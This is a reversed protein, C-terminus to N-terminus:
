AGTGIQYTFVTGGTKGTQRKQNVTSGNSHYHYTYSGDNESKNKAWCYLYAIKEEMTAEAPPAGQGPEWKGDVILNAEGTEDAGWALPYRGLVAINRPSDDDMLVFLVYEGGGGALNANSVTFTVKTVTGGGGSLYNSPDDVASEVVNAQDGGPGAAYLVYGDRERIIAAEWNTTQTAFADTVIGTFVVNTAM